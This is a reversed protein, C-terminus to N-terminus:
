VDHCQLSFSFKFNFFQAALCAMPALVSGRCGKFIVVVASSPPPVLLTSSPFSAGCKLMNVAEWPSPLGCFTMLRQVAAVAEELQAHVEREEGKGPDQKSQHLGAASGSSHASGSIKSGPPPAEMAQGASSGAAHPEAASSRGETTENYAVCIERCTTKIRRLVIRHSAAQKSLESVRVWAHCEHM